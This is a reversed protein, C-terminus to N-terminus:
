WMSACVALGSILTGLHQCLSCLGVGALLDFCMGPVLLSLQQRGTSPTHAGRGSNLGAWWGEAKDQGEARHTSSSGKPNEM